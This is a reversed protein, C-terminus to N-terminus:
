AATAESPTLLARASALMGENSGWAVAHAIAWGRARERDLGLEAAYFDLRREPLREDFAFRRDRILSALDFEREGVLPKPDIALWEDRESLLINSGQLDQHLVVQEGQTPSLERLFRIATRVVPERDSGPALEAAWEAAAAALTRFPHQEPAPRWLRSLVGVAISNADEEALDWLPTGPLCRELLLTHRECALLRAAGRGEYHRLAEGEHESETAQPPNLKLVAPTGDPLEVAVAYGVRSSFPEGLRLGHKAAYEAASRDTQALWEPFYHFSNM